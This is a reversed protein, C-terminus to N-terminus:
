RLLLMVGCRVPRDEDRPEDDRTEEGRHTSM